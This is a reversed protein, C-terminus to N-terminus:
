TKYRLRSFSSVVSFCLNFQKKEQAELLYVIGYLIHNFFINFLSTIVVRWGANM